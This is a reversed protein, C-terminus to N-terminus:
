GVTILHKLRDSSPTRDGHTGSWAQEFVVPIKAADEVGKLVKLFETLKKGSVNGYMVANSHLSAYSLCVYLWM